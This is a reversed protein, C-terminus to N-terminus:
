VWFTVGSSTKRDKLYVPKRKKKEKPDDRSRQKKEIKTCMM